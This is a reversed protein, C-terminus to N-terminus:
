RRARRGLFADREVLPDVPGLKELAAVPERDVNRHFHVVIQIERIGLQVTGGLLELIAIAHVHDSADDLWTIRRGVRNGATHVNPVHPQDCM